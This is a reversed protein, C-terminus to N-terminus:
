VTSTSRYPEGKGSALLRLGDADFSSRDQFNAKHTLKKLQHQGVNKKKKVTIKKFSVDKHSSDM